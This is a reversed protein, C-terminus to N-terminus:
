GRNSRDSECNTPYGDQVRGANQHVTSYASGYSTGLWLSLLRLTKMQEVILVKKRQVLSATLSTRPRESCIYVKTTKKGGALRQNWRIMIRLSPTNNRHVHVMFIYQPLKLKCITYIYAQIHDQTPEKATLGFALLEFFGIIKSSSCKNVSFDGMMTDDYQDECLVLM